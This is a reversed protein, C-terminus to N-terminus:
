PKPYRMSHFERFIARRRSRVGPAALFPSVSLPPQFFGSLDDVGTIIFPFLFSVFHVGNRLMLLFPPGGPASAPFPFFVHLMAM